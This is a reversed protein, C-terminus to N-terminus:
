CLILAEPTVQFIPCIGTGPDVDFTGLILALIQVFLAALAIKRCVCCTGIRGEKQFGDDPSFNRDERKFGM